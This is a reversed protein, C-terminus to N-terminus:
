IEYTHGALALQADPFAARAESLIAEHDNLPNLHTLLLANVRADRAIEGCLKASLHPAKENWRSHLLGADALLTDCGDCFLPLLANTNTDGTYVLTKGDCEIKASVGAVPHRAEAFSLRMEGVACDEHLSIDLQADDLMARVNQPSDPAFVRINRDLPHFQLFYKLPLMDSMHDYHLHSLVIANISKIDAFKQFRSLTGTGFDLMVRTNGSDSEVIYGSCASGAAPFPGCNGLVTLKM